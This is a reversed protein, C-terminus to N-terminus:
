GRFRLVAELRWGYKSEQIYRKAEEALGEYFERAGRNDAMSAKRDFEVAAAEMERVAAGDLANGQCQVKNQLSM